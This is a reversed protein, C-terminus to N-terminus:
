AAESCMKVGSDFIEFAIELTSRLHEKKVGILKKSDEWLVTGVFLAWFINALAMSNKIVFDGENIGEDFIEVISRFSKRFLKKIGSLSNPSLNSVTESTHFHLTEILVSPESEYIEYLAEKLAELKQKPNQNEDNTINELKSSMFQLFSLSLSALLDEKNKFYLYITASSIEAERAIDNITIDKLSKEAHLKKMAAIIQRRRLNKERQKREKIGM